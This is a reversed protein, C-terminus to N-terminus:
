LGTHLFPSAAIEKPIIAGTRQIKYKTILLNFYTIMIFLANLITRSFNGRSFEWGFFEWEDFEGRLFNGGLFNGGPINGGM